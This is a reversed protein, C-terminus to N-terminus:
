GFKAHLGGCAAGIYAKSKKKKKLWADYENNLKAFNAGFGPVEKELIAIADKLAEYMHCIPTVEFIKDKQKLGSLLVAIVEWTSVLIYLARREPSGAAGKALGTAGEAAGRRLVEAAHYSPNLRMTEIALLVSLEDM